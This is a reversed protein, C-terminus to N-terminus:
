QINNNGMNNPSINQNSINGTNYSGINQNPANVMNPNINANATANNTGLDISNIYNVVKTIFENIKRTIANDKLNKNQITSVIFTFKILLFLFELINDAIGVVRSIPSLVYSDLKSFDIRNNIGLFSNITEVINDFSSIVVHIGEVILNWATTVITFAAYFAIIKIILNKLKDDVECFLLMLIVVLLLTEWGSFLCALLIIGALGTNVKVKSM